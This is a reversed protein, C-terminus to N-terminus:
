VAIRVAGTSVAPEADPIRGEGLARFFADVV